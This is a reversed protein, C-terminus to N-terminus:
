QRVCKGSNNKLTCNEDITESKQVFLKAAKFVWLIVRVM